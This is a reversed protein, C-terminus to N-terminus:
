DSDPPRPCLQPLHHRVSNGRIKQSPLPGVKTYQQDFFFAYGVELLLITLLLSSCTLVARLLGAPFLHDSVIGRWDATVCSTLYKSEKPRFSKKEEEAAETGNAQRRHRGSDGSSGGYITTNSKTRKVFEPLTENERHWDSLDVGRFPQYVYFDLYKTLAVECSGNSYRRTAMQVEREFQAYDMSSCIETRGLLCILCVLVFVIHVVRVSYVVRM